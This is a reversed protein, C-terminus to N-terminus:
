DELLQARKVLHTVRWSLRRRLRAPRNMLWAMVFTMACLIGALLFQEGTDYNRGMILGLVLFIVPGIYATRAYPAPSTM